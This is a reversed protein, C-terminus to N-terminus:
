LLRMLVDGIKILMGFEGKLFLSFIIIFRKCYQWYVTIEWVIKCPAGGWVFGKIRVGGGGVGNQVKLLSLCGFRFGYVELSFIITCSHTSTHRSADSPAKGELSRDNESGGM